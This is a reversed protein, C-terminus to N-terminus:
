NSELQFIPQFTKISTLINKQKNLLFISDIDIKYNPKLFLTDGKYYFSGKYYCSYNKFKKKIEFTTDNFLYLDVKELNTVSIFHQKQEKFVNKNHYKLAFFFSICFVGLIIIPRFNFLEIRLTIKYLNNFLIVLFAIIFIVVFFGIIVLDADGFCYDDEHYFRYFPLIALLILLLYRKRIVKKKSM